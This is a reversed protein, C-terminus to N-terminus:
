RRKKDSGAQQELEHIRQQLADVQQRYDSVDSYVCLIRGQADDAQDRQLAAHVRVWTYSGDKRRLRKEMVSESIEGKLLRSLTQLNAPLDDPHTLAQFTQGALEAPDYGLLACLPPNVRRWGGDLDLWAMPVGAQEFFTRFREESRRLKEEALKRDTSEMSIGIMKVLRGASDRLSAGRSTIWRVSGDSQIIRFDYEYSSGDEMCQRYIRQLAEVDEPVVHIWFDENRRVPWGYVDKVNASYSVADTLWNWEWTVIRANEQALKMRAENEMIEATYRRRVETMPLEVVETQQVDRLADEGYRLWIWNVDLLQALKRLNGYDIEGGRTWKHVATRSVDLANAVSQLSLKRHELLEKLHLSFSNETM